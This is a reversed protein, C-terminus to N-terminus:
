GRPINNSLMMAFIFTFVAFGEVIAAPTVSIGFIEPKNKSVQIAAACCIGQYIACILLAIGTLLGIGFVGSVSAPNIAHEAGFMRGNLTFMIVIGYINMSSPLASLGIFKGHGSDLELMAGLAAQGAIACGIASGLASLAIPAFLGIWGPILYLSEM